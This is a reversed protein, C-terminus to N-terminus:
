QLVLYKNMFNSKVLKATKLYNPAANKNVDIALTYFM